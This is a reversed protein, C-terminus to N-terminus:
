ALALAWAYTRSRGRQRDAIAALARVAAQGSPLRIAGDGVQLLGDPAPLVASLQDAPQSVCVFSAALSAVGALKPLLM